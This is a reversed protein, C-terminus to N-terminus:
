HEVTAATNVGKAAANWVRLFDANLVCVNDSNSEAKVYKIVEKEITQTVIKQETNKQWYEKANNVAQQQAKKADELTKQKALEYGANLNNIKENCIVSQNNEGSKYGQKYAFFVLGLLAAIAAIYKIFNLNFM